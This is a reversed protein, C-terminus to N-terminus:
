VQMSFFKSFSYQMQVQSVKHTKKNNNQEIKSKGTKKGKSSVVVSSSRVMELVPPPPIFVLIKKKKKISLAFNVEASPHVGPPLDEPTKDSAM